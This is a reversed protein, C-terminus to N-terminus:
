KDASRARRNGGDFVEKRRRAKPCDGRDASVAESNRANRCCLVGACSSLTQVVNHIGFTQNPNQGLFEFRMESHRGTCELLFHRRGYLLRHLLGGFQLVKQFLQVRADHTETVSLRVTRKPFSDPSEFRTNQVLERRTHFRAAVSGPPRITDDVVIEVPLIPPTETRLIEDGHVSRRGKM